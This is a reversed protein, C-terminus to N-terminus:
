REFKADRIQAYIDIAGQGFDSTKSCNHNLSVRLLYTLLHTTVDNEM